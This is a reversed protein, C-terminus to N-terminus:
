ILRYSNFVRKQSISKNMFLRFMLKNKITQLYFRTVTSFYIMSVYAYTEFGNTM